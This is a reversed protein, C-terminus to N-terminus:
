GALAAEKHITGNSSFIDDLKAMDQRMGEAYTHTYTNLTLQTSSHGLLASVNSIVAKNQILISAFTHRLSHITVNKLGLKQIAPSFYTKRFWGYNLAEGKAGQFLFSEKRRGEVVPTLMEILVTPLPIRRVQNTKTSGEVLKYDAGFTWAKDITVFQENLDVDGVRLILAESIRAGTLGLFMVLVEYPACAEALDRLEDPTLAKKRRNTPEPASVKLAPNRTLLMNQDIAYNLIQTVLALAKGISAAGHGESLLGSVWTEIDKQHIASLKREGLYPLIQNRLLVEYRMMTRESAKTKSSRWVATFDNLSIQAVSEEVYTGNELTRQTRIQWDAAERMSNFSKVEQRSLFAATATWHGRSYSVGEPCRELSHRLERRWGRAAELTSFLVEYEKRRYSLRARYRGDEQRTIGREIHQM